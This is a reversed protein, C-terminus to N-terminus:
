EMLEEENETNETIMSIDELDKWIKRDNIKSEKCIMGLIKGKYNKM